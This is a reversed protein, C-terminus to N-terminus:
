LGFSFETIFNITNTKIDSVGNGYANFSIKDSFGYNNRLELLLKSRNALTFSKGLGFSIGTERGDVEVRLPYNIQQEGVSPEIIINTRTSKTRHNQDLLISVYPGITAFFSKKEGFNYKLLLPITLYSCTNKNTIEIRKSVLEESPTVQIEFSQAYFDFRRNELASGTKLSFRKNISLETSFGILFHIFSDKSNQLIPNSVKQNSYNLGGFIGIRFDDQALVFNQIVLLLLTYIIRKM